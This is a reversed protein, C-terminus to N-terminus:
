KEATTSNQWSPHEVGTANQPYAAPNLFIRWCVNDRFEQESLDTDVLFIPNVILWAGSKCARDMQRASNRNVGWKLQDLKNLYKAKQSENVYKKGNAAQRQHSLIDVPAGTLLREVLVICSDMSTAHNEAASETSDPIGLESRKVM